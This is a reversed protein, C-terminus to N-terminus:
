ASKRPSGHAPLLAAVFQRLSTEVFDEVRGQPDFGWWLLSGQWQSAMLLGIDRPADTANAFCADLAASLRQRWAAGRARLVPDRLDERLVLLGEAYAEIEGYGRSLDVLLDVAGESTRAVSAGLEQTRADLRDWAALLTAQKLGAKTKFRQVLTAPSLGCARALSEFTLAEPGREHILALAIELVKEDSLTKPRPM